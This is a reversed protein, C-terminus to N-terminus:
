SFSQESALIAGALYLSGVILVPAGRDRAAQLALAPDPQAAAPVDLGEFYSVVEDAPLLRPATTCWIAGAQAGLRQAMSRVDKRTGAGFVLSFGPALGLAPFNRILAAIAAPNHAGDLWVVPDDSLRQLRGPWRAHAVGHQIADLPLGLRNGIASAMAANRHQHTGPLSPQPLIWPEQGQM